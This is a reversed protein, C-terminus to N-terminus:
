GVKDLVGVEMSGDCHLYIEVLWGCGHFNQHFLSFILGNANKQKTLRDSPINKNSLIVKQHLFASPSM